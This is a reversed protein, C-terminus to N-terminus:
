RVSFIEVGNQTLERKVGYSIRNVVQHYKGDLVAIKLNKLLDEVATGGRDYAARRHCLSNKSVNLFNIRRLVEGFSCGGRRGETSM